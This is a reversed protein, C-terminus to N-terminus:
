AVAASGKHMVFPCAFTRHWAGGACTLDLDLANDAQSINLAVRILGANEAMQYYAYNRLQTIAYYRLQAISNSANRHTFGLKSACEM